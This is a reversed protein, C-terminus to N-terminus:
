RQEALNTKPPGLEDVTRIGPPAAVVDDIRNMLCAATAEPASHRQISLSTGPVGDVVWDMHEEEDPRALRADLRAMISVGCDTELVNVFRTGICLGADISEGLTECWMPADGVIPHREDVVNTVTCGLGHAVVHLFALYLSPQLPVLPFKARYSSETLGVGLGEVALRNRFDDIRTLSHHQLGDLRSCTGALTLAPWIRYGDWISGGVFSVGNAQALDDLEGAIAPDFYSPFTSQGGLCLVNIRNSLLTRYAALNERLLDSATVVAIRGGFSSFDFSALDSIARGALGPHGSVEGWDRGVKPGSRNTGVVPRGQAIALEALHAGIRGCGNILITRENVNTSVGPQNMVGALTVM